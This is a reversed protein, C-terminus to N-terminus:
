IGAQRARQGLGKSALLRVGARGLMQMPSPLGWGEGSVLYGEMGAKRVGGGARGDTESPDVVICFVPFKLTTAHVHTELRWVASPMHSARCTCIHMPM